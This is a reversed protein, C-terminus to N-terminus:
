TGPPTYKAESNLPPRSKVVRTASKGLDVSGFPKSRSTLTIVVYVPSIEGSKSPPIQYTLCAYNIPDKSL